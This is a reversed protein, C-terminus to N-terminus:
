NLLHSTQKFNAAKIYLVWNRIGVKAEVEVEARAKVEETLNNV